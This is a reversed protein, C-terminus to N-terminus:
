QSTQKLDQFKIPQNSQIWPGIYTNNQKHRGYLTGSLLVTIVCHQTYHVVFTVCNQCWDSHLLVESSQISVGIGSPM